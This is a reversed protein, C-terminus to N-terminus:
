TRYIELQKNVACKDKELCYAAFEPTLDLRVAIQEAETLERRKERMENLLHHLALVQNSMAGAPTFGEIGEIKKLVSINFKYQKAYEDDILNNKKYFSLMDDLKANSSNMVVMRRGQVLRNFNESFFEDLDNWKGCDSHNGLWKKTIYQGTEAGVLKAYEKHTSPILKAPLIKRDLGKNIISNNVAKKQNAEDKPIILKNWIHHGIEHYFDATGKNNIIGKVADYESGAGDGMKIKVSDEILTDLLPAPLLKAVMKLDLSKECSILISTDAKKLDIDSIINREDSHIKANPNAKLYEQALQYLPYLECGGFKVTYQFMNNLDKANIFKTASAM